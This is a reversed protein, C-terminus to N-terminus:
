QLLCAVITGVGCGCGCGRQCRLGHARAASLHTRLSPVALVSPAPELLSPREQQTMASSFPSSTTPGAPSSTRPVLKLERWVHCIRLRGPPGGYQRRPNGCFDACIRGGAVARDAAVRAALDDAMQPLFDCFGTGTSQAGTAYRGTSSRDVPRVGTRRVLFSTDHDSRTAEM